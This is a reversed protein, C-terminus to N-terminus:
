EKSGRGRRKLGAGALGVVMGGRGGVVGCVVDTETVFPGAGGSLLPVVGGATVAAGSDSSLLRGLPVSPAVTMVLLGGTVAAVVARGHLLRSLQTGEDETHPM